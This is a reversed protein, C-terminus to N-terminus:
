ASTGYRSHILDTFEVVVEAFPDLKNLAFFDRLYTSAEQWTTAANLEAIVANYYDADKKFVKRIFKTRSKSPIMKRLDPLGPAPPPPTTESGGFPDADSPAAGGSAAIEADVVKMEVESIGTGALRDPTPAGYLTEREPAMAAEPSKIAVDAIFTGLESLTLESRGRIKCVTEIHEKLNILRKDEFFVLLPEISVAQHASANGQTAFDYIPKALMALETASHQKVIQADIRSVLMRFDDFRVERWNWQAIVKAILRKFYAYDYTYDLRSLVEDVPLVTAKDFVFNELTWQPKCAYSQVFHVADDIISIYDTRSFQYADALARLFAQTLQDLGPVNKNVRAYRPASRLDSQLWRVVESRIYVKVPRPIDSSLVERLMITDRRSITREAVRDIIQEIERELM